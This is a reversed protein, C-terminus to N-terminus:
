LSGQAVWAYGTRVQVVKALLLDKIGGALLTNHVLMRILSSFGMNVATSGNPEHRILNHVVTLGIDPM